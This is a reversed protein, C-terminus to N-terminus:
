RLSHLVRLVCARVGLAFVRVWAGSSRVCIVCALVRLRVCVWLECARWLSRIANRSLRYRILHSRKFNKYVKKNIAYTTTLLIINITYILYLVPWRRWITSYEWWSCGYYKWKFGIKPGSELMKKFLYLFVKVVGKGRRRNPEQEGREKNEGREMREICVNIFLSAANCLTHLM